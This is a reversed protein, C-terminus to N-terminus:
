RAGGAGVLHVSAAMGPKLEPAAEPEVRVGFVQDARQDLTQVNRPLYEAQHRIEVVKGAFTRGPFGDVRIEARQGIAVQGLETEPVFIRIWLEAPELLTAVPQNAAVLDGPRLDFAEVRGAIPSRVVMEERQRALYALQARERDVAAAATEIEESRSGRDAEEWTKRAVAERVIAADEDAKGVVGDRYLSEIRGLDTKAAEWQVQARDRAESRPGKRALALQAEAAAVVARQRDIQPDLLTPDLEVLVDGAAVTAGEDIRVASVRGGVLSGVEVTRTEVTGAFTLPQPDGGGCGALALGAALPLAAVLGAPRLTM